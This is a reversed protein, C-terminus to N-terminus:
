NEPQTLVYTESPDLVITYPGTLNSGPKACEGSANGDQAAQMAEVLSQGPTAAPCDAPVHIVTGGAAVAPVPGMAAQGASLALIYAGVLWGARIRRWRVM